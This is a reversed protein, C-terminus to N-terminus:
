VINNKKMLYKYIGLIDDVAIAEYDVSFGYVYGNLGTKKMNDVFFDKSINALCLPNAMIESDKAKFKQEMLLYSAIIEM